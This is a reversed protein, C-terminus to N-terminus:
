LDIKQNYIKADTIVRVIYVGAHIHSIDIQLRNDNATKRLLIRGELNMIEVDFKSQKALSVSLLNGTQQITCDPIDAPHTGIGAQTYRWVFCDDIDTEEPKYVLEDNQSFCLLSLNDSGDASDTM